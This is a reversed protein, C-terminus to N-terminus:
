KIVNLNLLKDLYFPSLCSKRYPLLSKTLFTYKIRRFSPALIVINEVNNGLPNKSVEKQLPFNCLSFLYSNRYFFSFNVDFRM